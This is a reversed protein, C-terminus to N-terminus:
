PCHIPDVPAAPPDTIKYPGVVSALDVSTLAAWEKGIITVKPILAPMAPDTRSVLTGRWPSM